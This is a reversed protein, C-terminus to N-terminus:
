RKNWRAAAKKAIERRKKPSLKASHAQGGKSAGLAGLAVAASNRKDPEPPTEDIADALISHALLNLDRPRKKDTSEYSSNLADRKGACPFRKEFHYV